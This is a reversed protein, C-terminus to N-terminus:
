GVIDIVRCPIEGDEFRLRLLKGQMVGTARSVLHGAEDKVLVYGRGLVSLPSLMDLKSAAVALDRQRREIIKQMSRHLRQNLSEVKANKVALPARLDTAALRRQAQSLRWSSKRLSEKLADAARIELERCRGGLALISNATRAFERSEIIDRLESRRRLLYYGIGRRLSLELEEVRASLEAADRTVIEAAASPTPARHDAVFDAITFDTEHGVASVM